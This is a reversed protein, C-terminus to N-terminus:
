YINYGIIHNIDICCGNNFYLIDNKIIICDGQFTDNSNSFNYTKNM